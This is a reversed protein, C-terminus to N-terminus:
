SLSLPWYCCTNAREDGDLRIDWSQAKALKNVPIQCLPNTLLPCAPIWIIYLFTIKSEDSYHGFPKLWKKVWTVFWNEKNALMSDMTRSKTLMTEGKGSINENSM